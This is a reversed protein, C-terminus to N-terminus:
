NILDPELYPISKEPKTKKPQRSYMFMAIVFLVNKIAEVIYTVYWYKNVEEKTLHNALINFFFSGGLYILIGIAVWFFPENYIYRNEVGKFYFYFFILIYVFLLITEIGIPVADLKRFPFIFYNIVQFAFFLTSIIVITIRFKRNPIEKWIVSTFFIYELFTYSNSLLKQQSATKLGDGWFLLTFFILGYSFFLITKRTKHITILFILPLLLYSYTVIDFFLKEIIQIKDM